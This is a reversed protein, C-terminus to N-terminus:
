QQLANYTGFNDESLHAESSLTSLGRLTQFYWRGLGIACTGSSGRWASNEHIKSVAWTTM